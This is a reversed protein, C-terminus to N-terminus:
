ARKYVAAFRRVVPRRGHAVVAALIGLVFPVAAGAVSMGLSVTTAGIMIIVLGVAAVPTLWRAIRFLGPLVLGLAGLTECVGIFRMFEGSFPSQAALAEVPIVLKMGGAFLFLAALLGQVTWLAVNMRPSSGHTTRTM